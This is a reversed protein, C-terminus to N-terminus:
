AKLTAYHEKSLLQCLIQSWCVSAGETRERIPTWVEVRGRRPINEGWFVHVTWM